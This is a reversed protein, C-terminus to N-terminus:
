EPSPTVSLGGAVPLSGPRGLPHVESHATANEREVLCSRSALQAQVLNRECRHAARAEYREAQSRRERAPVLGWAGVM